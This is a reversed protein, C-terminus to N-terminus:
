RFTRVEARCTVTRYTCRFTRYSVQFSGLCVDNPTCTPRVSLVGQSRWRFLASDVLSPVTFSFLRPRKPNSLASCLFHLYILLFSLSQLLLLLYPRSPYLRILYRRRYSVIRCSYDPTFFSSTASCIAGSEFSSTSYCLVTCHSLIDTPVRSRKLEVNCCMLWSGEEEWNKKVEVLDCRMLLM